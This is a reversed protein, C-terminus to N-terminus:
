QGRAQAIYMTLADIEASSLSFRHPRLTGASLIQRISDPPSSLSSAGAKHCQQCRSKFLTEGEAAHATGALSFVACIVAYLLKFM